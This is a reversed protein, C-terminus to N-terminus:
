PAGGTSTSWTARPPSPAAEVDGVATGADRGVSTSRSFCGNVRAESARARSSPAAPAPSPRAITSRMARAARRDSRDRAARPRRCPPARRRQRELRHAANAADAARSCEVGAESQRQGCSSCCSRRRPSAKRAGPSAWGSPRRPRSRCAIRRRLALRRRRQRADRRRHPAIKPAQAIVTADVNGITWGRADVLSVVHRLLARSDAGKWRPDTDPFHAGLDGLALAGLLADAIAHLLVDADSHGALGARTRFRSAARARAPAGGRARPRRFRHRHADRRSM